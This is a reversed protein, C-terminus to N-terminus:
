SPNQNHNVFIQIIYILLFFKRQRIKKGIQLYTILKKYWTYCCNYNILIYRQIDRCPCKPRLSITFVYNFRKGSARRFCIFPDSKKVSILVSNKISYKKNVNTSM